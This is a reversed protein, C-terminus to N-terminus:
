GAMRQQVEARRVTVEGFMAGLNGTAPHAAPIRVCGEPLRDDRRAPLLAEGGGQSVTVADGEKVGLQQMLSGNMAAAPAAGDRTLQLSEARRALPDAQHIPVEGIRQLGGGVATLRELGAQALENGLRASIDAGDAI